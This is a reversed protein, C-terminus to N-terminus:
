EDEDDLYDSLLDQMQGRARSLRTYFAKESIGLIELIEDTELEELYKLVIVNRYKMPLRSAAWRVKGLRERTLAAALPEDVRTEYAAQTQQKIFKQWISRQRCRAKCTNIAISYIWTKVSARGGFRRRHVFVKVFVEQVADECDHDWALLRHVLQRVCPAYREIIEDFAAPAGQMFRQELGLPLEGDKTEAKFEVM